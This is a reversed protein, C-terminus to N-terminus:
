KLRLLDWYSAQQSKSISQTVSLEQSSSLTRIGGGAVTSLDDEGLEKAGAAAIVAAVDDDDFKFGNATGIKVATTAFSPLDNSTDSLQQKVDPKTSLWELFKIFQEHAM